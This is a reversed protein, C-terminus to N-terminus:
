PRGRERALAAQADRSRYVVPRRRLYGIPVSWAHVLRTFPWVALLLWTVVAHLQFVFPAGTMLSANPDFAFIGRFWPSVTERYAYEDIVTGKFTAIMGTVIALLLIPYMVRDGRSTTARVRPVASRRVLLIVFGATMAVGAVLGAISAILHYTHESIGVAETWSSPVLIGLIHGGIVALLGWHFLLTGPRLLRRELLQTSQATWTLQGRRYRWVHGVVFTAIALYPLAVWLFTEARSM